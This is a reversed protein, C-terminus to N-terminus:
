RRPRQAVLVMGFFAVVRYITGILLLVAMNRWLWHLHFGTLQSALDVDYLHASPTVLRGFYIEALWVGPSTRWAWEMHWHKVKALSPSAGSLIGVILSVMTAFLPADERRAIASVVSALGYICYFYLLNTLFAIGWNIIPVSLLLLPVSFHLCGLIMRPILSLVKAIFYAIRSHGAEAERRQLLMEESFAKVGPAAAVLGIAIAILLALEPASDIDTALSLISYPGNYTGTFLIGKKTNQALGLLFGALAALCMEACYAAKTRYQQLMARSLCLWVQKVRPAGRNRLADHMASNGLPTLTHRDTNSGLGLKIRYHSWHEILAEKSIDGKSKYDRGNGTIIDTIVDGHNSYDPFHFGVDEFYQKVDVQPGEYVTQGNGLLILKDFLDFIESRPQHIIVIVSIGLRALAKLTRMISSASTADLGSTPEDLFIAMPAAALEMGISVRKRQGGSIVPKAVSGVLSDRVHSLELCDVVSEAHAVIDADKWTKPLRVRASHVINEFVTLEPLVIDDQPVYGIVKKYKKLKGPSNNVAVLGGTHNTKGMLVNVFTSKGAGSGGMVAVLSGRDISGTMNQLIPKTSSKPQFKLDTYGFSLGFDNADTARRMSEVFTMVQPPLQSSPLPGNTTQPDPLELESFTDARRPMWTTDMAHMEHDRDDDNENDDSLAKYGTIKATIPNMRRHKLAAMSDRNSQRVRRHLRWSLYGIMTLVDIIILIIIPVLYLEYSSKKPCHSGAACPTPTSAGPQCYSGAPCPLMQTGNKSLPCYYGAQCVIPEFPGMAINKGDLTCAKSSLRSQQCSDLPPCYQPLSNITNNACLFGESCGQTQWDTLNQIQVASAGSRWCTAAALATQNIALEEAAQYFTTSFATRNQGTCASDYPSLSSADSSAELSTSNWILWQSTQPGNSKDNIAGDTVNGGNITNFWKGGTSTYVGETQNGICHWVADSSDAAPTEQLACVCGGSDVFSPGQPTEQPYFPDQPLTYPYLSNGTLSM